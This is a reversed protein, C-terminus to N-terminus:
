KTTMKKIEKVSAKRIIEKKTFEIRWLSNKESLVPSTFLQVEGGRLAQLNPGISINKNLSYQSAEIIQKEKPDLNQLDTNLLDIKNIKVKYEDELSKVAVNNANLKKVIENGWENAFAVIQPATIRKVETNKMEAVMQSTDIRKPNCGIAIIFLTLYKFKKM